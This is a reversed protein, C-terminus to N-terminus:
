VLAGERRNFRGKGLTGVFANFLPKNEALSQIRYENVASSGPVCTVKV